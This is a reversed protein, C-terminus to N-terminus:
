GNFCSSLDNLLYVNKELANGVVIMNAGTRMVAQMKEKSDIGGGVIVPISVQKKIEKVLAAPVGTRAGSGAELYLIKFGLQEAAIATHVIHKKGSVPLPSTNTVRQTASANTNDILLYAMSAVELKMRRILPAMVIQKEILYEPNRGSLLSPLFLGDAKGTLQTEDGPFLIVPISSIKKIASVTKHIDGLELHSGGVLFCFVKNKNALHVLEPNFKDPDILVALLPKKTGTIKKILEKFNM